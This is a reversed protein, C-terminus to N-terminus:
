GTFPPDVKVDADPNEVAKGEVVVYQPVTAYLWRWKVGNMKLIALHRSVPHDELCRMRDSTAVLRWEGEVRVYRAFGVGEGVLCAAALPNTM